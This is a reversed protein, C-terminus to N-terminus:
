VDDGPGAIWTFGALYLMDYGKSRGHELSKTAESYTAHTSYIDWLDLNTDYRMVAFRPADIM